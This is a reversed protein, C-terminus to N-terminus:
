GAAVKLLRFANDSLIGSSNRFYGYLGREGTPRGNEGMLHPVVELTMGLREAIAFYRFDGLLCILEGTTTVDSSMESSRWAPYGALTRGTSGGPRKAIGEALPMWIDFQQGSLERIANYFGKNAVIVANPEFRPPLADDLLDIDTLAFDGGDTEVHSSINLGSVIGLPETSGHGAGLAFKEAEKQDKADQIMVALESRMAPWDGEVEISYRVFVHAKEVDITPQGLTPSSDDVEAAEGDYAVSVGDSSVGKWQNGTITKIAALARWPNVAGNSTPVVTPDLTFPIAYGGDSPTGISLGYTALAHQETNNLPQGTILKGFAREYAPSGTALIRRAIVGDDSDANLLREIHTKAEDNKARPHPFSAHELARQAGDKYLEGLEEVSGARTRYEDLAYINEPARRGSDTRVNFPEKKAARLGGFGSQTNEPDAGKQEILAKREADQDIIAKNELWEQELAKFEADAEASMLAGAFEADLEEQRAKIEAQRAVLEAITNMSSSEKPKPEAATARDTSQSQKDPAPPTTAPVDREPSEPHEFAASLELEADTIGGADAATATTDLEGKGTSGRRSAPQDGVLGALTQDLTAIKDVMGLRLADQASVVRGQGFGDRVDQVSVGRGRAVDGAFQGYTQDVIHQVYAHAEDSLPQLPNLEAKFTGATILTTKIGLKEQMATIDEHAAIIGISGVRSSPSAIFETAQTGLWYAASAALTNAVAIVPKRQAAKRIEAATEACLDTSGGPSDIDLVIASVTDDAVADRLDATLQELSTGGSIETMLNAKPVLVGTVPIVAVGGTSAMTQAGRSRGGIRAQVEEATFKHGEARYSVLELIADFTADEIAWPTSAIYSRIRPLGLKM